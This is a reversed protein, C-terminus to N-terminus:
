CDSPLEVPRLSGSRGAGPDCQKSEPPSKNCGGAQDFQRFSEEPRAFIFSDWKKKDCDNGIDAARFIACVARCKWRSWSCRSGGHAKSSVAGKSTCPLSSFSSCFSRAGPQPNLLYIVHWDLLKSRQNTSCAKGTGKNIFTVRLSCLMHIPMKRESDGHYTTSTGNFDSVARHHKM